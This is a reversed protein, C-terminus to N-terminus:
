KKTAFDQIKELERSSELPNLEDTIGDTYLLGDINRDIYYVKKERTNKYEKDIWCILITFYCYLLV